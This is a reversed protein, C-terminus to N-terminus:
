SGTERVADLLLGVYYDLNLGLLLIDNTRERRAYVATNAPNRGGLALAAATGDVRRLTLRVTPTALGFDAARADAGGVVELKGPTTLATVIAAILDAPASAGPPETVTWRSDVRECRLRGHASEVELAVTDATPLDLPAGHAPPVPPAPPHRGALGYYTSLALWLGVYAWARRWSM